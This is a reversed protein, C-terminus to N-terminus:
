SWTEMKKTKFVCLEGNTDAKRGGMLAGNIMKVGRVARVANEDLRGDTLSQVHYSRLVLCTLPSRTPPTGVGLVLVGRARTRRPLVMRGRRIEVRGHAVVVVRGM